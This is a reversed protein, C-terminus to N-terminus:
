IRIHAKFSDLITESVSLCYYPNIIGAMRLGLRHAGMLFWGNSVYSNRRAGYRERYWAEVIHKLHYSSGIKPNPKAAPKCLLLFEEARSVQAALEADPWTGLRTGWGRRCLISNLHLGQPSLLEPEFEEGLCRLGVRTKCRVAPVPNTSSIARSIGRGDTRGAGGLTGTVGVSM